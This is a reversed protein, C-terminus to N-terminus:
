CGIQMKLSVPANALSKQTFLFRNDCVFGLREWDVQNLEKAARKADIRTKPFLALVSGDYAEIESAFFPQKNRTKGNVYVRSGIRACFKRGWEWWNTEDFRRIKRLLLRSKHKRLSQDKRNYIVRKPQGDKATTSCVMYTCGRQKNTFVDDAGSVAGVKVDFYDGLRDQSKDGFWIQGENCCFLRGTEMKRSKRGKKWRWIACNPTAGDFITADGLEYYHTISGEKYLRDNLNRASTAKLFDRPTIFILEGKPALHDMSKAIFFLYLNSRADFGEMPLIQKTRESIDQFRVYPPNGIITDFRNDRPYQFFDSRLVREDDSTAPDIEIGVANKELLSMFAGDGASPELISGKNQRLDLMQEVVWKPTFVQGLEKINM